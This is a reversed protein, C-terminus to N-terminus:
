PQTTVNEGRRKFRGRLDAPPATGRWAAPDDDIIATTQRQMEIRRKARADIFARAKGVKEGIKTPKYASVPSLYANEVQGDHEGRLHAAHWDDGYFAWRCIMIAEDVTIPPKKGAVAKRIAERDERNLKSSRPAGRPKSARRIEWLRWWEAAVVEVPDVEAPPAEGALLPLAPSPGEKDTDTDTDTDSTQDGYARTSTPATIARHGQPSPATTEAENDAELREAQPPGATTRRHLHPSPATTPGLQERMARRTRYETWGWRRMMARYGPVPKRHHDRQDLWWALDAAVLEDSWPGAGVHPAVVEPWANAPCRFWGGIM